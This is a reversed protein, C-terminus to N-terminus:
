FLSNEDSIETSSLIETNDVECTVNTPRVTCNKENWGSSTCLKVARCLGAECPQCILYSDPPCHNRSRYAIDPTGQKVWPSNEDDQKTVWQCIPHSERECVCKIKM